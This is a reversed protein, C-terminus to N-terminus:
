QSTIRHGELEDTNVDYVSAKSIYILLQMELAGKNM